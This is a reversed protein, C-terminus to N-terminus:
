HHGCGTGHGGCVDEPTVERLLEKEMLEINGKVTKSVAQYVRIGARNLGFLAGKGIGSVVVADVKDDGIARLPSCFGHAHHSDNNLITNVQETETDYVVFYRATGFHGYLESEIGNAEFVPFCVKM